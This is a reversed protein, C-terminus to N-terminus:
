PCPTTSTSDAVYVTVVSKPDVMTGQSPNTSVVTGDPITPDSPQCLSAQPELGAQKLTKRADQYRNGTVDPVPVQAPGSSVQLTVTSGQPAQDGASPNQQFVQGAPTTPDSANVCSALLNVKKLATTADGCTMGIVNPVNANGNSVFLTVIQDPKVPGPKPTTRVVLGSQLKSPIQTTQPTPLGKSALIALADSITKGRLNPLLVSTPGTSLIITVKSGKDAQSGPAPDTTIV